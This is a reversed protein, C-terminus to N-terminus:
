GVLDYGGLGDGLLRPPRFGTQTAELLYLDGTGRKRLLLDGRGSGRVDPIGVVWNYPTLDPGVTASGTLGGPGNGFYVRLRRDRLFLTDPAGDSNWRGIGVQRSATIPSRAAYSNKLGALGNGPYIRLSGGRPQGMLDPLGDGTMDGVADLLRVAGFGSAIKIAAAFRGQGDGRHLILAGDSSRRFVIDDSGDRDWDGVNLVANAGALNVQTPIARGLNFTGHHAITMLDAGRRAVLDPASNGTVNGVGSIQGGRTLRAFPGIRSGFTADGHSPLVYGQGGATRVVLDPTGDRTFDGFGSITDYGDWQGALQVRAGLDGTGTGPHLWLVGARDRALLDVHRDGNLDGTAALKDYGGWSGGLSQRTFGGTGNGLYANLIGTAPYRAVLDNDGDEDLDGVATILDRAAFAGTPVIPGAFGTRSGPRVAANGNTSRVVLDGLGDGTLDPSGVVADAGDWVGAQTTPPDLGLLGGTPLIFAKGDSARRVVLDPHATRALDSQLERGSWGRQANAAYRRIVPLKAYLFRGPCATQGADRHGNIARFNRTGVWQKDSSVNVGHLSLKWAFLSGYAQLMADSPGVTEYNGIASMAFSWDNYGLTHAGVVARDVGGARGEWIRGFRDVLFNYGVDSWGLSQTHYAYISRLIGPVEARSYGNANVTHHVFGAHVEFYHLSGRDRMRENAGWQQRSYIVPKPTFTTAQLDLGDAAGAQAGVEAAAPGGESIGAADIAARETTTTEPHGPAIVSMTMDAPPAGRTSESRVQVEDVKGVLLVDTGPRAHRAEESSPDPGHDEDYPLTMWQSWDADTRTRVEFELTEDDARQGPAWTVGVAGYGVVPEPSSTVETAGARLATAGAGLPRRAARTDAAPTLPYDRVRAEVPEGPLVSTRAAERTYAAFSAGGAPDPPAAGPVEGVVDISIIGAAPTLVALVVGLALLQQCATVFRAQSSRM